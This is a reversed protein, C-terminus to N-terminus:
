CEELPRETPNHLIFAYVDLESMTGFVCNCFNHFSFGGVSYKAWLIRVRPVLPDGILSTGSKFFIGVRGIQM